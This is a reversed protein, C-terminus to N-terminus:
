RSAARVPRGKQKRAHKVAHCERGHECYWGHRDFFVLHNTAHGDTREIVRILQQVTTGPGCKRIPDLERIEFKVASDPAARKKPKASRQKTTTTVSRNVTAMMKANRVGVKRMSKKVKSM